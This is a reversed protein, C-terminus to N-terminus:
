VARMGIKLDVGDLVMRGVRDPYLSAFTGFKGDSYNPSADIYRLMDQAVASTSVYRASDNKHAASCWDVMHAPWLGYNHWRSRLSWM